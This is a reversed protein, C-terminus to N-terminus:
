LTALLLSTESNRVGRIQRIERLIKDFTPLSTTEIVAVLDWKGNTAYSKSIEPLQRLRRTVSAELSGEIEILM